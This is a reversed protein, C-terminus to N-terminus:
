CRHRSLHASLERSARLHDGRLRIAEVLTDPLMLGGASRWAFLEGISPTKVTGRQLEVPLGLEKVRSAYADWAASCNHQLEEKEACRM